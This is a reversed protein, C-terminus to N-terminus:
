KENIVNCVPVPCGGADNVMKLNSNQACIPKMYQPCYPNPNKVCTTQMCGNEDEKTVTEGELCAIAAIQPCAKIPECSPVSCGDKNLTMKILSGKRCLPPMYQPCVPPLKKKCQVLPCGEPSSSRVLEGGECLPAMVEPCVPPDKKKCIVQSCGDSSKVSVLVGDDCIPAMAIPCTPVVKKKCVVQDCGDENKTKVLQGGECLPAMVVPCSSVVECVGYSCGDQGVHTKLVENPGCQVAMYQPCSIVKSKVCTPHQCGNQGSVLTLIENEACLPPMYEPCIRSKSTSDSGFNINVSSAPNEAVSQPTFGGKSCNQFFLLNACIVVGVILSKKIYSHM